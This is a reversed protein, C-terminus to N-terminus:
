ILRIAGLAMVVGTLVLLVGAGRSVAAVPLARWAGEGLMAAVIAPIVAGIVGGAGALLPMAGWTAVGLAVFQAREGLALIFSGGVSTAFAGIRWRELRDTPARPRMAAGLGAGALSLALLLARANPTMVDRIALAGAVAIGMVALQALFLGAIVQGRRGSRDALIAALWTARDGMSALLVAIFAPVLADM